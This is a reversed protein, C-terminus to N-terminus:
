LMDGQFINNDAMYKDIGGLVRIKDISWKPAILKERSGDGTIREIVCEKPLYRLQTCITKIYDEYSMPLIKGNELEKEMITGSMIHLLHIKVGDPNLEGVTKATNVMDEFTEDYLGNIIHICSRIGANKLRFYGEEFEKYSHGRNCKKAIDDRITQLGLEVSLNTKESIECLLAVVEEGLCDGRTAISIGVVDPFNLAEEYKAKLVEVPAYTNTHAQFYAILPVKGFKKFIREREKELQHTISGKETFESAGSICYTCGGSGCKGDINPCTFGADLSARMVREGYVTKLHYNLTHYRKNDISYPFPNNYMERVTLIPSFFLHRRL